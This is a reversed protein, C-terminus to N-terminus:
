VFRRAPNRHHAYSEAAVALLRRLAPGLLVWEQVNGLEVAVGEIPLADPAAIDYGPSAHVYSQGCAVRLPIECVNLKSGPRVAAPPCRRGSTDRDIACTRGGAAAEQHIGAHGGHVERHRLSLSRGVDAGDVIDPRRQHRARLERDRDGSLIRRLREVAERHAVVEIRESRSLKIENVAAARGEDVGAHAEEVAEVIEVVGIAAEHAQTPGAVGRRFEAFDGWIRWRM